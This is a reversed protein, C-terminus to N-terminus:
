VRVVIRRWITPIATNATARRIAGFLKSIKPPLRRRAIHTRRQRRECIFLPPRPFRGPERKRRMGSAGRSFAIKESVSLFFRFLGWSRAHMTSLRDWKIGERIDTDLSAHMKVSVVDTSKIAKEFESFDDINIKRHQIYRDHKLFSIKLVVKRM